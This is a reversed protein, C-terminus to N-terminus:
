WIKYYSVKNVKFSVLGYGSDEYPAEPAYPNDAQASSALLVALLASMLM